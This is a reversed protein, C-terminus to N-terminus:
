PGLDRAARTGRELDIESGSQAGVSAGALSLKSVLLLQVEELREFRERLESRYARDDTHVLEEMMTHLRLELANALELAEPQTLPLTLM